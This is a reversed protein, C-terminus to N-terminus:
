PLFQINFIFIISDFFSTPSCSLSKDILIISSFYFRLDLNLYVGLCLVSLIPLNNTMTKAKAGAALVIGASRPVRVERWFECDFKQVKVLKQSRSLNYRSVAGTSNIFYCYWSLKETVKFTQVAVRTINLWSRVRVAFVCAMGEKCRSLKRALTGPSQGTNDDPLVVEGYQRATLPLATHPV